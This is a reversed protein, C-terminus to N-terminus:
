PTCYITRLIMESVFKSILKFISQWNRNAQYERHVVNVVGELLLVLLFLVTRRLNSIKTWKSKAMRFKQDVSYDMISIIFIQFDRFGNWLKRESQQLPVFEHQRVNNTESGDSAPSCIKQYTCNHIIWASLKSIKSFCCVDKLLRIFQCHKTHLFM